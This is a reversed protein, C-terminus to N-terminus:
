RLLLMGREVEQRLPSTFAIVLQLRMFRFVPVVGLSDSKCRLLIPLSLQHEEKLDEIWRQSEQQQESLQYELLSTPNMDTLNIFARPPILV